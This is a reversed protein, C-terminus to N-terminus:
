FVIDTLHKTIDIKEDSCDCCLFYYGNIDEIGKTERFFLVHQDAFNVGEEGLEM